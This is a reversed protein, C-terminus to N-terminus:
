AAREKKSEPEKEHWLEMAPPNIIWGILLRHLLSRLRSKAGTRMWDLSEEHKSAVEIARLAEVDSLLDPRYSKISTPHEPVFEPNQILTTLLARYLAPQDNPALAAIVQFEGGESFLLYAEHGVYMAWVSRRDAPKEWNIQLLKEIRWRNWLFRIRPINLEELEEDTQALSTLWEDITLRSEPLWIKGSPFSVEVTLAKKLREEINEWAM